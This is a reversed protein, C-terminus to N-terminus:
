SRNVAQGGFSLLEDLQQMQVPARRGLPALLVQEEQAGLPFQGVVGGDVGQEDSLETVGGVQGVQGSQARRAAVPIWATFIVAIVSATPSALQAFHILSLRSS